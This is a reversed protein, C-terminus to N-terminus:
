PTLTINCVHCSFAPVKKRHEETGACRCSNNMGQYWKSAGIIYPSLKLDRLVLEVRKFPIERCRMGFSDDRTRFVASCDIDTNEKPAAAITSLM